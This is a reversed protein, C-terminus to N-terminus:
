STFPPKRCGRYVLQISKPFVTLRFEIQGLVQGSIDEMQLDLLILNPPDILALINLAEKGSIATFLKYGEHKLLFENIELQDICDDILLITKRESTPCKNSQFISERPTGM